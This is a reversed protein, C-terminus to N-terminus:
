RARRLAKEATELAARVDAATTDEGLSFRLSSTSAEVDGMAALVPSPEATGASCASGGSAAVGELDLAAVLEPAAWGPFAISTVHPARPAGAGNVRAGPALRLLGAELEDRLSALAAWRSASALAHRAAVEFGAAVVPDVTGPRLGREQSGGLLLPALPVGPRTVLAGMSKPGRMKHAAMSRTDAEPATEDSRGFSQVADVHVRAGARRALEIAERVPQLVGTEQNVTQVALLRVDGECALALDDLDITGEPLVRLWRVRARGERELAEAVRTVSPHELRSTLLVGGAAAFASRVALNNAETGGSTLLVDRPDCRALGSVAERAREVRARAARGFAHVSSPNAWADRAVDSMAAAVEVLPPTTANWDLYVRHM